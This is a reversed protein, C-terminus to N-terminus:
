AGQASNLKSELQKCYNVADDFDFDSIFDHLKEADQQFSTNYSLEKLQGSPVEADISGTLAFKQIDAILIMSKKVDLDRDCVLRYDKNYIPELSFILEDVQQTLNRILESNGKTGQSLNNELQQASESMEHAGIYQASSKLSHALRYLVDQKGNSLTSIFTQSLDLNKHYFDKVLELYLSEKGQLLQIASKPDLSKVKLLSTLENNSDSEPELLPAQPESVPSQEIRATINLYQALCSFLEDPDIPKTIHDNMGAALSKERDGAMAHATMAVIPLKLQLKKRIECAASLGDLVPMQIDMLVLDYTTNQQLKDIAIQGNEAVDVQAKTDALFGLAVQRNIPNDEVLLIHKSSLNPVLDVVDIDELATTESCALSQLYDLLLSPDLPKELFHNIGADAALLKAEDKDFASVMLIKPVKDGLLSHIKESAEIGDMNPMRWDMVVLDYPRQEKLAKNVLKLAQIGDEAIDPPINLSGLTDIIVRRSLEVDDVVLLRLDALAKSTAQRNNNTSVGESVAITFHFSSGQNIESELWIRGGMLECLQKCIALGLGTGGFRRTASEDVQSFSEFLLEQQQLSLGIGSDIVSVLLHMGQETDQRKITVKVLGHETFKVANSTLNTIIQQLRLPDSIVYKPVDPAIYTVLELGKSHAKLGCINVARNLVKELEFQNSDITMKGAEIKSFDLIDNILGLLAESSDLIKGVYDGQEKDLKTRLALRSLGIVANMPTRIEHSMNALFSSKAVNADELQKNKQAIESTRAAVEKELVAHQNANLISIAAQSSLMTLIQLREENFASVVLNNELYLAAILAGQQVIPLCIISKAETTKIYDDNRYKIDCAAEELLVLKSTREVYKVVTRAFNFQLLTGASCYALRGGKKEAACVLKLHRSEQLLIGGRHAGASEMALNLLQKILDDVQLTQSLAQSAKVVSLFDFSRESNQHANVISSTNIAVLDHLEPYQKLMLQLKNAAGWQKYYRFSAILYATANRQKGCRICFQAALESAIAANQLFLHESADDIALDFLESASTNKDSRYDALLARILAHKHQFNSSCGKDVWYQMKRQNDGVKALIEREGDLTASKISHLLIISHYFNFEVSMSTGNIFPVFAEARQLPVMAEVYDGRIIYAATMFLYYYCASMPSSNECHSVFELLNQGTPANFDGLVDNESQLNQLFIQLCSLTDISMQHGAKNVFPWYSELLDLQEEIPMGQSYLNGLGFSINFAAYQYDGCNVGETYGYQIAYKTKSLPELWPLLFSVHIFNNRCKQIPDDYEDTIRSALDFFIRAQKYDEFVSTLIGALTVFAKASEAAKGYELTINAMLMALVAYLKQNSMYATPQMNMIVNMAGAANEDVMAAGKLVKESDLHVINKDLRSKENLIKLDLQKFDLEIGLKSLATRGYELAVAYDGKVSHQYVLQSYVKVADHIDKAQELCSHLLQNSEEGKGDLYAVEALNLNLELCMCFHSQWADSTVHGLAFISESYFGYALQYASNENAIDGAKKNLKTLFYFEDRALKGKAINYHRAMEFLVKHSCDDFNHQSKIVQAIHLHTRLRGDNTLLSYAAEQVKDHIFKYRSGALYIAGATLAPELVDTLNHGLRISKSFEDLESFSCRHGIASFLTLLRLSTDPLANLRHVMLDVINDTAPLQKIKAIRWCWNLKEDLYVLGEDYFSRLLAQIYFPNGQTRLYVEDVVEALKSTYSFMDELMAYCHKNSLTKLRLGSIYKNKAALSKMLSTVPHSDDVENDRYSLLMIFYKLEPSSSLALILSLSLQDAWQIDDIFIALPHNKSALVSALRVFMDILRKQTLAANLKVPEDQDGIALKLSPLLEVLVQANGGLVLLLQEKLLSVDDDSCALHMDILMDFADILAKLAYGKGLQEYKGTVFFGFSYSIPDKIERILASKGVGPEGTVVTTVNNGDFALQVKDFLFNLKKDRGYLRPPLPLSPSKDKTAAKFSSLSKGSALCEVVFDLDYRLGLASQYRAGANKELLKSVILSIALPVEIVVDHLPRVEIALHFQVLAYPDKEASPHEGSFLQYLIIGLSYFDTRYDIQRATRGTQEPSMTLGYISWVDLAKNEDYQQISYSALCLDFIKVDLSVPDVLIGDYSLNALTLNHSHVMVILSALNSALHLKDLLNLRGAINKLPIYQELREQILLDAKSDIAKCRVIYDSNLKQTVSFSHAFSLRDAQSKYGERLYCLSVGENSKKHRALYIIQNQTRLFEKDIIYDSSVPKHEM